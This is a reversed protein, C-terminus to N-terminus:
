NELRSRINRIPRPPAGPERVKTIRDPTKFPDDDNDSYNEEEENENRKRKNHNTIQDSIKKMITDIKDNISQLKEIILKKYNDNGAMPLRQIRM